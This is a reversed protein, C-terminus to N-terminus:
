LATLGAASHEFSKSLRRKGEPSVASVEHAEAAWDVGAYLRYLTAEAEVHFCVSREAPRGAVALGRHGMTGTRASRCMCGGPAFEGSSTWWPAGLGPCM